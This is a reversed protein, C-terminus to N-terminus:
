IIFIAGSHRWFRVKSVSDSKVGFLTSIIVQYIQYNVLHLREPEHIKARRRLPDAAIPYGALPPSAGRGIDRRRRRAEGGHADGDGGICM